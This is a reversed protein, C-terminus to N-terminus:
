SSTCLLFNVGAEFDIFYNAVVLLFLIIFQIENFSALLIILYFNISTDNQNIDSFCVM